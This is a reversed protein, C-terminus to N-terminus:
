RLSRFCYLTLHPYILPISVLLGFSPECIQTKKTVRSCLIEEQVYRRIVTYFIDTNPTNKTRIKECESQICLNLSYFLVSIKARM